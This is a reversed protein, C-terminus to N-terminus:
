PNAVEPLSRLARPIADSLSKDIQNDGLRNTNSVIEALTVEWILRQTTSDRFRLQLEKTEKVGALAIANDRSAQDIKRNITTPPYYTINSAADGAVGDRTGFGYRYDVTFQAKQQHLQYGKDELATEVAKRVTPDFAREPITISSGLPAPVRAWAYYQYAKGVFEDTSAPQIDVPSCATIAITAGVLALKNMWGTAGPNATELAM